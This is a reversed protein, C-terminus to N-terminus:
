EGDDATEEEIKATAAANRASKRRQQVTEFPAPAAEAGHERLFAIPDLWGETSLGYGIIQFDAPQLRALIATSTETMGDRKILEYKEQGFSFSIREPLGDAGGLVVKDEALEAITLMLQKGEYVFGMLKRGVEAIRGTRVGFHLHPQYGGNVRATGITGLQQGARVIEGAKVFRDNALHGYVTTTYKGDPLQHEVVVLNGWSLRAGTKPQAGANRVAGSKPKAKKDEKPPRGESVRVVGNAVAYVPEGVRYWGVDAGLHLLHVGGVMDQVTLGYGGNPQHRFTRNGVRDITRQVDDFFGVVPPCFQEVAPYKLVYRTPSEEGAAPIPQAAWWILLVTRSRVFGFNM